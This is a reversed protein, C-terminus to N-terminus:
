PAASEQGPRYERELHARLDAEDLRVPKTREALFLPVQDDFHPSAADLTASGFQHITESRVRGEADWEVFLILTDGSDATFTGDPGLARAEAARLVDPGGDIPEDFRGRRFRNLEGWPPDLRGHHERLSRAAAALAARPEPPAEGRRRAELMPLTALVGLAAARDDAATDFDWSALVRQAEALGPDDSVDLALLGEVWAREDSRESYRTDYKYARFAEATIREDGGWLELARLGRNTMGTEIGLREPFDEARPGEGEATARFPTHNCNVVFGSPPDIVHPVEDLSLHETWILEPRDGPLDGRWDPGPARRPLSANYVYAIRGTRDAYVFNISPLAQMSMASWWADFDRARNMRYYQDIQRIEGMGAYRFAFTGAPTEVVPGHESRLVDRTFTWRLRGLLRVDLGATRRELDRWADGLRYQGPRDAATVLAYVDFLDPRNVTSAWGLDRNHGHLVLPSGPFVGGAADWGEGSRLRVEYWAVPGRYPQHSNVLLRTAGDSTRRPSVAVANSGLAPPAAPGLHFARESPSLQLALKPAEDGAGRSFLERLSGDLGYFLPTKFAFGAVVDQGRVPVVGPLVADPHLAAWHNFGDAYAEALARAEPSIASHYGAEVDDWFGLLRVMYDVPAADPGDVRALQGRTALLVKQITLADDEAHAYALGYAVDPDTAGYIHPVGFEDRLIRVDYREARALLPAPDFGPGEPWLAWVLFAAVALALAALARLLTRM